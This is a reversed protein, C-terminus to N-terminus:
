FYHRRVERSPSAGGGSTDLCVGTRAPSDDQFEIFNPFLTEGESSQCSTCKAYSGSDADAATFFMYSSSVWKYPDNTPNTAGTCTAETMYAPDSCYAGRFNDMPLLSDFSAVLSTRTAKTVRARAWQGGVYQNPVSGRQINVFLRPNDALDSSFGKGQITLSLSDSSLVTGATPDSLELIKTPDAELNVKAVPVQAASSWTGM